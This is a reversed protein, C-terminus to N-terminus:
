RSSDIALKVPHGNLSASIDDAAVSHRTFAIEGDIDTFGLNAIDSALSARALDLKGNIITEKGPTKIPVSLDLELNAEGDASLYNSIRNLMLNSNLPSDHVFNILSATDGTFAGDINVTKYPAGLDPIIAVGSAIISNYVRGRGINIKLERGAFVLDADINNIAPWNVSYRLNADSVRAIVKYQGNNDDFPFDELSGRFVTEISELRGGSIAQRIWHKIRFKHTDPLYKLIQPYDVQDVNAVLDVFPSEGAFNITGSLTASFDSNSLKLRDPSLLLDGGTFSWGLKGDLRVRGPSIDNDLYEDMVASDGDFVFKGTAATGRAKGSITSVPVTGAPKQLSLRDFELNFQVKEGAPHEPNFYVSSDYLNGSLKHGASMQKLDQPISALSELVPTVDDLKLYSFNASYRYKDPSGLPEVLLSFYSEPWSGNTTVLSDLQLNFVWSRQTSENGSFRYSLQEIDLINDQDLVVQFDNYELQGNIATLRANEWSSWVSTTAHGGAVSIEPPWYSRYWSDPNINEGHIYVEATWDSTLIDGTLDVAFRMSHGYDEPLLTSGEVQLRRGDSRLKLNADTLSIPNQGLKRDVWDIRIDQLEILNQGLLWNALEDNRVTQEQNNEARIGEIEISGDVERIVGIRFGSLTLQQPIIRRHVLTSLLDISIEASSFNVIPYIGNSSLLDIDDLYLRPTWGQWDAEITHIAVPLDTYNSVWAEIESRYMGIDPLFLRVGTAIVAILLVCVGIVYVALHYTSKLLRSIM